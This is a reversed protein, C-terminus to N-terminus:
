GRFQNYIEHIREVPGDFTEISDILEQYKDGRKVKLYGDNPLHAILFPASNFIGFVPHDSVDYFVAHLGIFGALTPSNFDDSTPENYFFLIKKIPSVNLKYQFSYVEASMEGEPSVIFEFTKKKAVFFYIALGILSIGIVGLIFALTFSNYKHAVRIALLVSIVGFIMGGFIGGWSNDSHVPEKLIIEDKM